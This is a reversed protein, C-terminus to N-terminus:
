FHETVLGFIIEEYSVSFWFVVTADNLPDHLRGPSGTAVHINHVQQLVYVNGIGQEKLATFYNKYKPKRDGILFYNKTSDNFVKLLWYSIAEDQSSFSKVINGNRDILEMLTLTNKDKVMEYLEHLAITGDPRYYFVEKARETEDELEQRCSLFGLRDYYDRRIKKHKENFFNIFDLKHDTATFVCYMVLAGDPQCIRLDKGALEVTWGEHMPKIQVNRPKEVARDIEQFYEYMNIVPYDLGYGACQELLDNQWSNTVFTTKIGLYQEFLRVRRFASFELGPAKAKIGNLMCFVANNGAAFERKFTEVDVTTDDLQIDNAVEQVSM